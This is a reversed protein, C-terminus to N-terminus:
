GGILATISHGALLFGAALVSFYITTLLAFLHGVVVFLGDRQLIGVSLGLIALAPLMNSFPIISLPMMLLVGSFLLIFGNFRNVTSGHTLVLYRPRVKSDIWTFTKAARQLAPVLHDASIEHDMLRAPLWPVRNLTVGVGILVILLGFVTSVGPIQVPILFPITLFLCFLLMGQEGIMSLLKRLTIKTGPQIATAIEGLTESLNKSTDEFQVSSM